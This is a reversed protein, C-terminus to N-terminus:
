IRSVLAKSYIHNALIKVMRYATKTSEQYYEKVCTQKVKIFELKDVKEKTAVAKPIM